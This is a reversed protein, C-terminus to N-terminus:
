VLLGCSEDSDQFLMLSNEAVGEMIEFADARSKATM